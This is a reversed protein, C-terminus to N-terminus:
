IVFFILVKKSQGNLINERYVELCNRFAMQSGSLFASENPKVRRKITREQRALDVLALENVRIQM